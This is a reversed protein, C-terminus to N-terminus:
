HPQCGLDVSSPLALCPLLLPLPLTLQVTTWVPLGGKSPETAETLPDNQQLVAARRVYGIYPFGKTCLGPIGKYRSTTSAPWSLQGALLRICPLALCPM